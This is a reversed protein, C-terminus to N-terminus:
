PGLGHDIDKTKRSSKLQCVSELGTERAARGEMKSVRGGVVGKAM